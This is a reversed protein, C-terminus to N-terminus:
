SSHCSTWVPRQASVQGRAHSQLREEDQLSWQRERESHGARDPKHDGRSLKQHVHQDNNVYMSRFKLFTLVRRPGVAAASSCPGQIFKSPVAIVLFASLCIALALASGVVDIARKIVLLSRRQHGRSGPRISHPTAPGDPTPTTWDDPFFHFSISVQSFDEPVQDDSLMSKVRTLITGLISGQRQKRTRHVSGWTIRRSVMRSCRHRQQLFWRHGWTRLLKAKKKQARSIAPELLM